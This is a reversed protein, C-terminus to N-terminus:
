VGEELPADVFVLGDGRDLDRPRAFTVWERLDVEVASIPPVFVEAADLHALEFRVDLLRALEGALGGPHAAAYLLLSGRARLWLRQWLPLGGLPATLVVLMLASFAGLPLAMGPLTVRLLTFILGGGVAGLLLRKFPVGAFGKEDRSLVHSKFDASM